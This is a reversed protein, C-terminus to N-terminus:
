SSSRKKYLIFLKVKSWGNNAFIDAHLVKGVPKFHDKLTQWTTKFNLNGVYVRNTVVPASSESKPIDELAMDLRDKINAM